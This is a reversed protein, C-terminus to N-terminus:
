SNLHNSKIHTRRNNLKQKDYAIEKENEWNQYGKGKKIHRGKPESLIRLSGM